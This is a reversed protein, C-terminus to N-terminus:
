FFPGPYIRVRGDRAGASTTANPTAVALDPNGDADFDGAALGSWAGCGGGTEIVVDAWDLEIDQHPLPGRFLYVRDPFLGYADWPVCARVAIDAAGDQDFDATALQLGAYADDTQGLLRAVPVESFGAGGAYVAVLGQASQWTEPDVSCAGDRCAGSIGAAFDPREDGALDIGGVIAWPYGDHGTEGGTWGEPLEPVPFYAGSGAEVADFLQGDPDACRETPEEWGADVWWDGGRGLSAFLMDDPNLNEDFNGTFALANGLFRHSTGYYSKTVTGSQVRFAGGAYFDTEEEVGGAEGLDACSDSARYTVWTHDLCPSGVLFGDTAHAVVPNPLLATNSAFTFTPAVGDLSDPWAAFDAGEVEFYAAVKLDLSADTTVGITTGSVALGSGLTPTFSGDGAPGGLRRTPESLTGPEIAGGARVYIGGPVADGTPLMCGDILGGEIQKGDVLPCWDEFAGVVLETAGDSDLDGAAVSFGFQAPLGDAALEPAELIEPDPADFRVGEIRDCNDDQGNNAWERAAPNVFPDDDDCDGDIAAYGDTVVCALDSDGTGFGDSDADRWIEEPAGAASDTDDCDTGDSVWGDPPDCSPVAVSAEGFGDGDGDVHWSSQNIASEDADDAKGDCDEDTNQADCVEIGGPNAAANTDDCDTADEVADKACSPRAPDGYRDGDADVWGFEGTTPGEPDDDDAGGDCDEDVVPEGSETCRESSGPSISANEDNCDEPAAFGDGDLDAISYLHCASLFLLFFLPHKSGCVRGSPSAGGKPKRRAAARNARRAGLDKRAENM